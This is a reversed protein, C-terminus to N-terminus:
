GADKEKDRRGGEKCTVEITDPLGDHEILSTRVQEATMDASFFVTDTHGGTVQWARLAHRKEEM